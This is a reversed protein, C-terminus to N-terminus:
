ELEHVVWGIVGSICDCFAFGFGVVLWACCLCWGGSWRAHGLERRASSLAPLDWTSITLPVDLSGLFRRCWSSRFELSTLLVICQQRFGTLFCKKDGGRWREM